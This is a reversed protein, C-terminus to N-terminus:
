EGTRHVCFPLEPHMSWLLCLSGPSLADCGAKGGQHEVIEEIRWSGAAFAPGLMALFFPVEYAFLQTMVRVSGITTFQSRSTMSILGMAFSLLSLLYLVVILDGSFSTAAPLGMLPVYLGATLVGALALVPLTLFLPRLTGEAVIDEKLAVAVSVVIAFTVFVLAAALQRSIPPKEAEPAVNRISNTFVFLVAVLGAGVSLEIVAATAAGMRYLAVATLASISALGVVMLVIRPTFMAFVGLLVIGLLQDQTLLAKPSRKKEGAAEKVLPQFYDWTFAPEVPTTRMGKIYQRDQEAGKKYLEMAGWMDTMATFFTDSGFTIYLHAPVARGKPHFLMKGDDKSLLLVYEPLKFM